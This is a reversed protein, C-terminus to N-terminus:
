DGALSVEEVTVFEDGLLLVDEPTGERAEQRAAMARAYRTGPEWPLLSWILEQRKRALLPSALALRVDGLSQGCLEECALAAELMVTDLGGDAFLDDAIVPLIIKGRAALERNRRLDDLYKERVSRMAGMREEASEARAISALDFHGYGDYNFGMPTGDVEIDPVRSARVGRQLLEATTEHRVNLTVPGAGFGLETVPLRVLLALLAETPSWANDAVHALTRRAQDVGRLGPCGDLFEAIRAKTTAPEVGFTVSGTRPSRPDRAYTGCLEYGVLAHVIPHMVGALELFLLEPGVSAVEEGLSVYSGPPIDGGHVSSRFLAARPRLRAQPVVIDLPRDQSPPADIALPGKPIIGATWRKRPTPDPAALDTRAGALRGNESRERRLARLASMRNVTLLM